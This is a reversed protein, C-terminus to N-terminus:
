APKGFYLPPTTEFGEPPNNRIRNPITPFGVQYLTWDGDTHENTAVNLLRSFVAKSEFTIPKEINWPRNNGAIEPRYDGVTVMVNFAIEELEGPRSGIHDLQKLTEMTFGWAQDKTQNEPQTNAPGGSARFGELYHGREMLQGPQMAFGDLSGPVFLPVRDPDHNVAFQIAEAVVVPIDSVRAPNLTRPMKIEGLTLERDFVRPVVDFDGRPQLNNPTTTNLNNPTTATTTGPNSGRNFVTRRIIEEIAAAATLGALGLVVRRNTRRTLLTAGDTEPTSDNDERTEPQGLTQTSAEERPNAEVAQQRGSDTTTMGEGEQSNIIAGYLEM